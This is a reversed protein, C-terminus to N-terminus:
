IVITGTQLFEGLLMRGYTSGVLHFHVGMINQYRTDRIVSIECNVLDTGICHATALITLREPPLLALKYRHKEVVVITKTISNISVIQNHDTPNPVLIAGLRCAIAQMGFCIGLVPIGLLEAQQIIDNNVNIVHMPCNTGINFHSGSLIVRDVNNVRPIRTGIADEAFFISLYIHPNRQLIKALPRGFGKNRQLFTRKDNIVLLVTTHMENEAYRIWM